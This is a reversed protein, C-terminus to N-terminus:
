RIFLLKVIDSISGVFMELYSHAERLHQRIQQERSKRGSM